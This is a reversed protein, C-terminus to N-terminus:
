QKGKQERGKYYGIFFMHYNAQEVLWSVKSKIAASLGANEFVNYMKEKGDGTWKWKTWGKPPEESPKLIYSMNRCERETFNGIEMLEAYAEDFLEHEQICEWRSPKDTM